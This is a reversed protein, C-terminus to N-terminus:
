GSPLSIKFAVEYQRHRHRDNHDRASPGLTIFPGHAAEYHEVITDVRGLHGCRHLPCPYGNKTCGTRYHERLEQVGYRKQRDCGVADPPPPPPSVVDRYKCRLRMATVAWDFISHQGSAFPHGCACRRKYRRCPPCVPWAGKCLRYPPLSQQGCSHCSVLDDLDPCLLDM